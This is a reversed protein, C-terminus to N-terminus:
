FTISYEDPMEPRARAITSAALFTLGLTITATVLFCKGPVLFIDRLAASAPPAM